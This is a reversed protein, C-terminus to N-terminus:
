SHGGGIIYQVALRGLSKPILQDISLAPTVNPRSDDPNRLVATLKGANKAVVIRDADKPSVSLTITTYTRPESNADRKRTVQGTALVEVNSMLPFTTEATGGSPHATVILDIRDSPRLMGSISNVEDVETTLARNGKPLTSSFVLNTSELHLDLLPEGRKLPAGLRQGVLEEFQEPHVAAAHLYEAPIERIAFNEGGIPEGRVVDRSAVVVKTMAHAARAEADIQAMRDSLLKHSLALAVGGLLIAGGLMLFSRNIHPLKLPINM